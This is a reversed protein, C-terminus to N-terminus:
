RKGKRKKNQEKADLQYKTRWLEYEKNSMQRRMQAVTM